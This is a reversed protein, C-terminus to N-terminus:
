REGKLVAEISYDVNAQLFSDDKAKLAVINESNKAAQIIEFHHKELELFQTKCGTLDSIVQQSTQNANFSDMYNGFMKARAKEILHVWFPNDDSSIPFEDEAVIFDDIIVIEARENKFLQM